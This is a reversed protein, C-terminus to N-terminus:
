ESYVSADDTGVVCVCVAPIVDVLDSVIFVLLAEAGHEISKDARYVVYVDETDVPEPSM